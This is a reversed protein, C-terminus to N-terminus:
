VTALVVFTGRLKSSPRDSRYRYTGPRLNLTWNMTGVARVGTSRNTAPGLLHFNDRRSRDSVTVTYKGAELETLPQGYPAILSLKPGPAVSVGINAAPPSGTLATVYADVRYPPAVSIAGCGSAPRLPWEMVEALPRQTSAIFQRIADAGAADNYSTEGLVLRQSLGKATLTADTAQLDQLLTPGGAHVEFWTPLPKGTARLADILNSLRSQDNWGVIASVTVDESGFADVYNSYMRAVYDALQQKTALYDSPAGENLLDFHTSAPGYQKVLPRVTRILSWNEEFLSADYRNDPFGIPDNTWEPGFVVTLQKFGAARVDSVYRILNSRESPGLTGGASSLVGWGQGSADHMHWVFLRLTEIGAAHMAALQRRIATRGYQGDSLVGATLNCGSIVYHNYNAGILPPPVSAARRQTAASAGVAGTLM